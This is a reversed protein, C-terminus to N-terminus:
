VEAAEAIWRLCNQTQEIKGALRSLDAVNASLNFADHTSFVRSADSARAAAEKCREQMQELAFAYEAKLKALEKVMAEYRM